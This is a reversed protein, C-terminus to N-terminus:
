TCKITKILRITVITVYGSSNVPGIVFGMVPYSVQDTEDLDSEGCYRNNIEPKILENWTRYKVCLLKM